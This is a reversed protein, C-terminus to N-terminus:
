FPCTFASHEYEPCLLARIGFYAARVAPATNNRSAACLGPAQYPPHWPLGAAALAASLTWSHKHMKAVNPRWKGQATCRLMWRQAASGQEALHRHRCGLHLFCPAIRLCECWLEPTPSNSQFPFSPEELPVLRLHSIIKLVLFVVPESCAISSM